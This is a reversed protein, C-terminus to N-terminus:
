FLCEKKEPKSKWTCKFYYFLKFVNLDLVVLFIVWIEESVVGTGESIGLIRQCVASHLVAGFIRHSWM